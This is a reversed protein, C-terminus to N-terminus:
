AEGEGATAVSVQKKKRVFRASWIGVEYLIVLPVAMLLQTFPDPPTLLAAIVFAGVIFHGRYKAMDGPDVIGTAGLFTMVLPLQFVFGFAVCLSSIFTLFYEATITPMGIEISVYSNLFYMGYPVAGFYGFLVGTAFCLVSVPFYGVVTKRERSYLGAAVFQWMQWLLIPAGVVIASYLCIKLMFLFGEAPKIFTLDHKFNLLRKDDPDSSLFFETRERAPDAALLGEAEEVFHAEMMDTARDYPLKVIRIIDARFFWAVVFAIGVALLGRALRRRLEELHEGLTMRTHGFPDEEVM